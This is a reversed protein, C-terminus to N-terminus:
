SWHLWKILTERVKEKGERIMKRGGGGNREERERERKM